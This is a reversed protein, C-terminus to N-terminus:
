QYFCLQTFNILIALGMTLSANKEYVNEEMFSRERLVNNLNQIM